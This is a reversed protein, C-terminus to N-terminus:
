QTRGLPLQIRKGMAIVAHMGEQWMAHLWGGHKGVCGSSGSAALGNLAIHNSQKLSCWCGHCALSFDICGFEGYQAVQEMPIHVQSVVEQGMYGITVWHVWNPRPLAIPFSHQCKAQHALHCPTHYQRQLPPDSANAQRLVLQPRQM